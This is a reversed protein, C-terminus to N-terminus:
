MGQSPLPRIIRDIADDAPEPPLHRSAIGGAAIVHERARRLIRRYEDRTPIRLEVVPGDMTHVPLVEGTAARMLESPVALVTLPQTQVPPAAAAEPREAPQV